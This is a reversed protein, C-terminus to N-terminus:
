FLRADYGSDRLARLLIDTSRSLLHFDWPGGAIGVKQTYGAETPEGNVLKRHM